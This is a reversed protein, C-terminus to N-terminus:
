KIQPQRLVEDMGVLASIIRGIGTPNNGFRKLNDSIYINQKPSIKFEISTPKSFKFKELSKTDTEKMWQSINYSFDNLPNSDNRDNGWINHLRNFCYDNVEKIMNKKEDNTIHEAFVKQVILLVFDKMATIELTAKAHFTQLLNQGFEGECMKKYTEEKKIHQELDEYKDWLENKTADVFSNYLQKFTNPSKDINKKLMKFFDLIPINNDRIMKFLPQFGGSNYFVQILLHFTRCEIYDDFSMTNTSTVVRGIEATITGDSLKGFDMANVRYHTKIDYKQIENIMETGELLMLNYAIITGIGSELSMSLTEMHSELTEGPLALILETSTKLGYQTSDRAVEKIAEININQRKINKLVNIDMSQVAARVDMAGNLVRAAKIIREQKNKGTSTQVVIPYNKNKQIKAIHECIELDRPFMAFNSDTFRLDDVVGPARKAIYDLEGLVRDMSFFHVKTWWSHGEDCFTCSFPCGRNTQMTPTLKGDFFKDLVGTLYPSPIDDLAKLRKMMSGRHIVGSEGRHIIGDIPERKLKEFNDRSDLVKEVVNSFAEEGELLAYFDILKNKEIWKTKAREDTPINPGGMVTITTPSLQKVMAFFSLGLNYNWQYNSLGLIDPPNDKISNELDDIYKFLQIDVQTGFRKKCFSGIYGVNLPFTDSALSITTYTLDGLYIKLPRM